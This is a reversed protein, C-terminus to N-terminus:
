DYDTYSVAVVGAAMPLGDKKVWIEADNASLFGLSLRADTAGDCDDVPDDFIALFANTDNTSVKKAYVAYLKCAADALVKGDDTLIVDAATFPIFQLDPAAGHQTLYRFLQDIVAFAFPDGKTGAKLYNFAKRKALNIEQTSISM